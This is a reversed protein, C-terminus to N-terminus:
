RKAKTDKTVKATKKKPAANVTVKGAGSMPAEDLKEAAVSVMEAKAKQM